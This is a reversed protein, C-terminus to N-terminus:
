IGTKGRKREKQPWVKGEVLSFRATPSENQRAPGQARQARFRAPTQGLHQRFLRTLYQVYQFGAQIAVQKLPLDTEAILQKARELQVRRIEAHMTRGMVERFRNKLTSRSVGVCDVVDRVQIRKCARQRIFRVAAAVDADDIALTDTSRRSVVGEPEVVFRFQTTKGGAMLHDLLAAAEYGMRRAGQEISSLPPDTLDCIMEDNDVGMLAVDEPVRLGLSRCAELVHRARVDNCAMLGVPKELAAVWTMLGKQLPTWQRATGHRGTYMSCPIGAQAAWREFAQGRIESWRIVRTRPYGYFALRRFGRDILHQAALAAIGEDDSAFYPIRTAPDYWGSGGGVGVVPTKLGRVAAAVKRDDFNAIIGEGHWSRLDPLKQLPDEEVYLSWNAREKVYRAVGGIIKRDYPKAADVILAVHRPQPM